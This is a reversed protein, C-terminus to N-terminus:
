KRFAIKDSASAAARHARERYAKAEKSWKKTISTLSEVKLKVAETLSDRDYKRVEELLEELDGGNYDLPPTPPSIVAPPADVFATASEAHPDSSSDSKSVPPATLVATIKNHEDRLEGAIKLAARATRTTRVLERQVDVIGKEKEGKAVGVEEKTARLEEEKTAVMREWRVIQERLGEAIKELTWARTSGDKVERETESIVTRLDDLQKGLVARDLEAEGRQDRLLRDKDAVAATLSRQGAEVVKIRTELGEITSRARELEKELEDRESQIAFCKGEVDALQTALEDSASRVSRLRLESEKEREEREKQLGEVLERGEARERERESREKESRSRLEVAQAQGIELRRVKEKLERVTEEDAARAAALSSNTQNLQALEEEHGSREAQLQRGLDEKSEELLRIQTSLEQVTPSEIDIAANVQQGVLITLSLRSSFSLSSRVSPSLKSNLRSIM